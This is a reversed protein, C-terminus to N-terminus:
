AAIPGGQPPGQPAVQGASNDMKDQMHALYSPLTRFAFHTCNNFSVTKYGHRAWAVALSRRSFMSVHGNRPAVYWWAVGYLDLDSPQLSTSYFILGPDAAFEIISALGAMPDPMHELTEFCTVLDFKGEPRRSYQPVIPDYSVATTFGKARLMACLADNGGGFDLVRYTSRLEGWFKEIMSANGQPRVTVYEHDLVLYEDNYIHKRFDEISWDDMADTFIFECNACRRYYVPVGCLPLPGRGIHCSKNFDVVGYLPSAGGCIKCPVSDTSLMRLAPLKM